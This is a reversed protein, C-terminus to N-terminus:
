KTDGNNAAPPPPMECDARGGDVWVCARGNELRVVNLVYGPGAHREIKAGRPELVGTKALTVGGALAALTVLFMVAPLVNHKHAM